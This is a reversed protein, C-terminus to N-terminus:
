DIVSSRKMKLKRDPRKYIITQGKTRKGKTMITDIRRILGNTDDFREYINFCPVISFMYSFYTYWRCTM